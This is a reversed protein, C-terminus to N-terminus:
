QNDIILQYKKPIKNYMTITHGSSWENLFIEKIIITKKGKAGHLLRIGLGLSGEDITIMEGGNQNIYREILNECCELSYIKM